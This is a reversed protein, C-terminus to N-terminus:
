GKGKGVYISCKTEISKSMEIEVDKLMKTFINRSKTESTKSHTAVHTYIHM